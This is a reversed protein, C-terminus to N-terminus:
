TLGSFRASSRHVGRAAGLDRAECSHLCNHPQEVVLTISVVLNIPYVMAACVGRTCQRDTIAALVSQKNDAAKNFILHEMEEFQVM